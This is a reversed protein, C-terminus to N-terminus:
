IENDEGKLIELIVKIGEHWCDNIDENNCYELRIHEIAKDVRNELDNLKLILQQINAEKILLRLELENATLLSSM